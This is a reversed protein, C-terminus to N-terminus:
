GFAFWSRTIALLEREALEAWNQELLFEGAAERTEPAGLGRLFALEYLIKAARARRHNQCMRGLSYIVQPRWLAGPNGGVDTGFGPLPGHEAHLAFLEDLVRFNIRQPDSERLTLAWAVRMLEAAEGYEKK